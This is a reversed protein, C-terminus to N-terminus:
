AVGRRDAPREGRPWIGHRGPSLVGNPDVADKIREAFRRFSYDNFSFQDSALEMIDVHARYEGYGLKGVEVIMRKTVEFANRVAAEDTTDFQIGTVVISCRANVMFIGGSHLIGADALHSRVADIVKRIEGPENAVIPSFGIHGIGPPTKEILFMSPIGAFNKEATLTIEGYEHPEYIRGESVVRAGPIAEWRERIKRTKYGIVERDEWLAIRAGWRGLGTERGYAVIQEETWPRPEPVDADALMAGNRPAPHLCPVGRLTGELLLDRLVVMGKELDTDQDLALIMTRYAEPKKQLWVGARVVIGYNSQTFFTDFSPGLARKYLHWAKNGPQAGMGTRLLEGDPLVVELGTLAMFDTGMPMYGVGNDMNNGIVSGWGIDPVAVQLNYGGAEIAEYLDFWRVGPEVVAYALDENIELVRNMKRMNIQVSGAVRPSPGGYGYNRGQSVPWVPVRAANAIRMIAQVEETCTPEVVASAAYTDDGPIWYPDRLEDRGAAETLVREPGLLDVLSRVVEPPLTLPAAAPDITM